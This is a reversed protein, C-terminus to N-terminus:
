TPGGFLFFLCTLFVVAHRVHGRHNGDVCGPRARCGFFDCSFRERVAAGESAGRWIWGRRCREGGGRREGSAGQLDLCVVVDYLGELSDLNRVEFRPMRFTSPSAMCSPCTTNTWYAAREGWKRRVRDVRAIVTEQDTQLHEHPTQHIEKTKLPSCRLHKIWYVHQQNNRKPHHNM